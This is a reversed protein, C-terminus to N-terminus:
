IYVCMSVNIYLTKKKRKGLAKTTAQVKEWKVYTESTVQSEFIRFKRNAESHTNAERNSAVIGNRFQVM